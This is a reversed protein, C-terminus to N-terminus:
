FWTVNSWRFGCVCWFQAAAGLMLTNPNAILPGFDTMAGVGLFILPPFIEMQIGQGIAWMVGEHFGNNPFNALVCGFAIPTLLLPEYGKGIALYLLILGVVIMTINGMNLAVYGSDTWVSQIAVLFHMWIIIGGIRKYVKKIARHNYQM